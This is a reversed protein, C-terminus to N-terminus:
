RGDRWRKGGTRTESRMHLCTRPPDSDAALIGEIIPPSVRGKTRGVEIPALVGSGATPALEGSTDYAQLRTNQAAVPSLALAAALILIALTTGREM